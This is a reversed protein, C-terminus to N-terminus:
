EDGVHLNAVKTLLIVGGRREVRMVLAEVSSRAAGGRTAADTNKRM